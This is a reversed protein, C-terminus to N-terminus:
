VGIQLWSHELASIWFSELITVPTRSKTRTTHLMVSSLKPTSLTCTIIGNMLHKHLSMFDSPLNFISNLFFLAIYYM